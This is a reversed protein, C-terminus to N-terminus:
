GRPEIQEGDSARFEVRRWSSERPEAMREKYVHDRRHDSNLIVLARSDGVMQTVESVIATDVSPGHMYCLRSLLADGGINIGGCMCAAELLELVTASVLALV